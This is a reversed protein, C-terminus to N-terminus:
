SRGLSQDRWVLEEATSPFRFCSEPAVEKISLECTERNMDVIVLGEFGFEGESTLSGPVAAGDGDGDGADDDDDDDDGAQGAGGPACQPAHKGNLCERVNRFPRDIQRHEDDGPRDEAISLCEFMNKAVKAREKGKLAHRAVEGYTQEGGSKIVRLVTGLTMKRGELSEDRVQSLLLETNGYLKCLNRTGQTALLDLKWDAPLEDAKM